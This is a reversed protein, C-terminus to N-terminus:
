DLTVGTDKVVKQWRDIEQTLYKAYADPSSGRAEAGQAALSARVDASGLAKLAAANLKRVIDPSTKAPVM